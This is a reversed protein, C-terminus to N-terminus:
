QVLLQLGDISTNNLITGKCKDIMGISKQMINYDRSVIKFTKLMLFQKLMNITGVCM